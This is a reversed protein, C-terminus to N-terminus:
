FIAKLHDEIQSVYAQLKAMEDATRAVIDNKLQELVTFVPHAEPAPEPTTTPQLEAVPAAAEAPAAAPAETAVPAAEAPAPAPAVPAAETAAAQKEEDM